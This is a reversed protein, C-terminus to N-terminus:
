VNNRESGSGDNNLAVLPPMSNWFSATPPYFVKGTRVQTPPAKASTGEGPDEIDEFIGTENIAQQVIDVTSSTAPQSIAQPHLSENWARLTSTCAQCASLVTNYVDTVKLLQRQNQAQAACLARVQRLEKKLKKNEEDLKCVKSRLSNAVKSVQGEHMAQRRHMPYEQASSSPAWIPCEEAGFLSRRKRSLHSSTSPSTSSLDM